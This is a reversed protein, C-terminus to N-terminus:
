GLRSERKPEESKVGIIGSERSSSCCSSKVRKKGKTM